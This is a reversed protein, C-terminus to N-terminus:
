VRPAAGGPQPGAAQGRPLGAPLTLSNGAHPRLMLSSADSKLYVLVARQHGMAGAPLPGAGRPPAEGSAFSAPGDGLEQAAVAARGQTQAAGRRGGVTHDALLEVVGKNLRTPLGHKRLQPEMTHVMPGRPGSLPGASLSFDAIALSGPRAYDEHEFQGM